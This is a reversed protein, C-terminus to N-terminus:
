ARSHFAFSPCRQPNVCQYLEVNRLEMNRDLVAEIQSIYLDMERDVSEAISEPNIGKPLLQPFGIHELDNSVVKEIRAPKIQSPIGDSSKPCWAQRVMSITVRQSMHTVQIEDIGTMVTRPDSVLLQEICEELFHRADSVTFRPPECISGYWVISKGKETEIAPFVKISIKEKRRETEQQDSDVEARKNRFMISPPESYIPHDPSMPKIGHRELAKRMTRSNSEMVTKNTRDLDVEESQDTNLGTSDEALNAAGCTPCSFEQGAMELPVDMEQGCGTCQMLFGEESHQTDEPAEVLDERAVTAAQEDGTKTRASRMALTVLCTPVAVLLGLVSAGALVLVPLGDEGTLFVCAFALAYFGLFLFFSFRKHPLRIPKGLNKASAETLLVALYFFVSMPLAFGACEILSTTFDNM